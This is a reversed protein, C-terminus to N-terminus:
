RKELQALLTRAAEREKVQPGTISLVKQYQAKAREIDGSEQLAIGLNLQAEVFNPDRAAQELWRIAEAARKQQVLIAGLGNAADPLQPSLELAKQYATTARALDGQARRANGLNAHYVANTPDLRTAEEFAAAADADRGADALLLGNGNHAAPDSVNLALAAEEARRAEDAFGLERAVVSLEHYLTADAPWQKVAARFRALAEQRRGTTALARAYTSQFISSAPYAASLKSLAPLAEATRGSNISTLASEFASWAEMVNAPNQGGAGSPTAASPAVYGLSRLREATESSVNGAKAGSAAASLSPKEGAQDSLVRLRASMAQVVPARVRALNEQEGPDAQLDFLFPQDATILKWRDEVLSKLPTWGAVTPYETEAYSDANTAPPDLLSRGATGERPQNTLALATPLVDIITAPDQRESGSMGPAGVILPIRLAGEFLLMGHTPEGHEGLSEGHDGAVITATQRGDPRADIASLLRALEADVHAIEGNYADGRARARADAPPDYPAHPDYFHVWFFWPRDVATKSLLAIARDVVENARRDAQLRDTAKPDREIRDDYEGFGADLGFRRDLVFAGVVARTQYGAAGLRSALTGGSPNAGGNLRVGHAAPLLGTMLSVHAPLTLPVVTRARTFRLGRAALRDLTPTFGAGLRDARMTDITVLLLNSPPAKAERTLSCACLWLLMLAAVHRAIAPRPM